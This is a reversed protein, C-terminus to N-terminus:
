KQNNEKAWLVYALILDGNEPELKAKKVMPPIIQKWREESFDKPDFLKHCSHCSNAYISEGKAVEASPTNVNTEEKVESIVEANKPQCAAVFTGVAFLLILKKM